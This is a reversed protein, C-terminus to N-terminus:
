KVAATSSGLVAGHLRQQQPLQGIQQLQHQQARQANSAGTASVPLKPNQGTGGSSSGPGGNPGMPAGASTASSHTPVTGGMVSSALRAGGVMPMAAAGGYMSQQASHQQVCHQQASHQQAIHPQQHPPVSRNHQMSATSAILLQQQQPAHRGRPIGTNSGGTNLSANPPTQMFGSLLQQTGPLQTGRAATPQVGVPHNGPTRSTVLLPSQQSPASSPHQQQLHHGVGPLM